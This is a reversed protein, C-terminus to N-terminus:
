SHRVLLLLLLWVVALVRRRSWDDTPRDQRFNHRQHRRLERLLLLRLQGTSRDSELRGRRWLLLRRAGERSLWQARRKRGASSASSRWSETRRRRSECLRRRLLQLLLRAYERCSRGAHIDTNDAAASTTTARTRVRWEQQRRGRRGRRQGLRQLALRM